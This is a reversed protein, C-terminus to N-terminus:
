APAELLKDPTIPLQRVRIGTANFVANAIAAAAGTIPIEGLGRAGIATFHPDPVDIFHAELGRIDAHVPVRYDALNRTVFRGTVADAITEEMLAMGLGM